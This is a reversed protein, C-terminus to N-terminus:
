RNIFFETTVPGASQVKSGAPRGWQFASVLVRIPFKTGAPLRTFTLTDGDIQAPGSVMFFQVPLGSSAHALLHIPRLSAANQSPPKPFELTQPEGETNIVNLTPRAPHETPRYAADGDNYAIITPEWPNGQPVITGFHPRIRFEDPGVQLLAGSNVRYHIPTDTHSLGTRSPQLDTRQLTSLWAAEIKFTGADDLYVPIFHFMGGDEDVQGNDQLFGVQQPKKALQAAMHHQVFEALERDMYWFAERPDGKWDRYAVPRGAPKGLRAPDLLWGTKADIPKMVVPAAAVPGSPIRAAAKNLFLAVVKMSDDSVNCHGSGIDVYLGYLSNTRGARARLKAAMSRPKSWVDEVKDGFDFWESEIHMTPIGEPGDDKVGTKFPMLGFFRSLNSNAIHWVFSGASSHGVALLPVYSVEAYGSEGALADLVSQLAIGAGKADERGTPYNPNLFIDLPSGQQPGSGLRDHGPYILVIGLGNAAAAARFEASEFLPKELMNQCAVILGRIHSAEPPVWLYARRGEITPVPVSYQWVADAFSSPVSVFLALVM